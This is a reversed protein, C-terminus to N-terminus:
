KLARLEAGRQWLSLRNLMFIEKMSEVEFHIGFKRRHLPQLDTIVKMECNKKVADFKVAKDCHNKQRTMPSVRGFLSTVLAGSICKKGLM